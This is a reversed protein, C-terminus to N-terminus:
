FVVLEEVDFFLREGGRVGGFFVGRLFVRGDREVVEDVLVRPFEEVVVGGANVIPNMYPFVRGVLWRYYNM